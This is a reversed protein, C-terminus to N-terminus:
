QIAVYFIFSQSAAERLRKFRLGTGEWEKQAETQDGLSSMASAASQGVARLSIKLFAPPTTATYSSPSSNTEFPEVHFDVINRRSCRTRRPM